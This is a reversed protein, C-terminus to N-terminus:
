LNDSLQSSVINRHDYCNKSIVVLSYDNKAPVQILAAATSKPAFVYGSLQLNEGTPSCEIYKSLLNIHFEFVFNSHM